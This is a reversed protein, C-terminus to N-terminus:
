QLSESTHLRKAAELQQEPRTYECHKMKVLRVHQNKSLQHPQRIHATKRHPGATGAAYYITHDPCLFSLAPCLLFITNSM